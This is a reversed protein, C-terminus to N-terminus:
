IFSGPSWSSTIKLYRENTVKSIFARPTVWSSLLPGSSMSSEKCGPIGSASSCAPPLELGVDTCFESDGKYVEPDAGACCIVTRGVIDWDVETKFKFGSSETSVDAESAM